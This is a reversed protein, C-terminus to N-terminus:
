GSVEFISVSASVLVKDGNKPEFRLNRAKSSFMVCAIAAREDKLTFYLHGSSGHHHFNSIEGNVLVSLLNADSNLKNKLYSVLTFVSIKDSM